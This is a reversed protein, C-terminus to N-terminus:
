VTEIDWILDVIFSVVDMCIHDPNTSIMLSDNLTVKYLTCTHLTVTHTHTSSLSVSHSHSLQTALATVVSVCSISVCKYLARVCSDATQRWNLDVLLLCASGICCLLLSWNIWHMVWLFVAAICSSGRHFPAWFISHKEKRDQTKKRHIFLVNIPSFSREALIDLFFRNTIIFIAFVGIGSRVHIMWSQSHVFVVMWLGM